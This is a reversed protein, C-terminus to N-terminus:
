KNYSHELTPMRVVPQVAAQVVPQSLIFAGKTIYLGISQVTVYASLVGFTVFGIALFKQRFKNGVQKRM